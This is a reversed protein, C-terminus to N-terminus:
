IGSMIHMTSLVFYRNKLVDRRKSLSREWLPKSREIEGKREGPARALAGLRSSQMQANYEKPLWTVKRGIESYAQLGKKLYEIMQFPQKRWAKCLDDFIILDDTEMM